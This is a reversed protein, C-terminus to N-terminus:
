IGRAEAERQCRACRDKNSGGKRQKVGLEETRECREHGHRQKRPLRSNRKERGRAANCGGRPGNSITEGPCATKQPSPMCENSRKNGTRRSRSPVTMNQPSSGRQGRFVIKSFTKTAGKLSAESQLRTGWCDGGGL